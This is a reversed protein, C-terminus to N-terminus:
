YKLASNRIKAVTYILQSSLESYLKPYSESFERELILKEQMVNRNDLRGEPVLLNYIKSLKYLMDNCKKCVEDMVYSVIEFQKLEEKSSYSISYHNLKIIHTLTQIEDGYSLLKKRIKANDSHSISELVLDNIITNLANPDCLTMLRSSKEILEDAVKEKQTFNMNKYTIDNNHKINNKSSKYNIILAIISVFATIASPLIVKFFEIYNM